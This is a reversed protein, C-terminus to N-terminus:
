PRLIERRAKMNKDIQENVEKYFFLDNKTFKKEKTKM